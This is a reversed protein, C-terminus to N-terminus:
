VAKRAPSDTGSRANPLQPRPGPSPGQGARGTLMLPAEAAIRVRNRGDEKAAYLAQDAQSLLVAPDSERRRPGGMALGLSVTVDLARHGQANPCMVPTMEILRRMREAIREAQALGTDPLVILFEEGGIRAILDMARLKERLRM